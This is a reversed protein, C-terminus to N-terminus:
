LIITLIMKWLVYKQGYVAPNIIFFPCCWKRATEFNEIFWTVSENMAKEFPTFEFDPLYKRLKLNSATKKYQGDAKETNYVVEGTFGSSKVIADVVEKISIEDKEDVSLVIPEIDDYHRVAWIMLKALDISYIFQRLPKGTGSVELSTGEKQALYVKHILAPIVHASDLNYNDHPGYVNCPIVATYKRNYKAAYGRNM